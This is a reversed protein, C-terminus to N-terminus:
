LAVVFTAVSFGPTVKAALVLYVTRRIPLVLRKRSLAPFGSAVRVKLKVM